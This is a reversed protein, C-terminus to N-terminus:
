RKATLTLKSKVVVVYNETVTFLSRLRFYLRFAFDYLFRCRTRITDSPEFAGTPGKPYKVTRQVM